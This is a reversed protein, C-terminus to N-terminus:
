DLRMRIKPAESEPLGLLSCLDIPNKAEFYSKM